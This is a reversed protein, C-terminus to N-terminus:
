KKCNGKIIQSAFAGIGSHPIAFPFNTKPKYGVVLLTMTTMMRMLRMGFVVVIVVVLIQAPLDDFIYRMYIRSMSM